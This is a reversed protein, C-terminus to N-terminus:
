TPATSSTRRVLKRIADVGDAVGRTGRDEVYPSFGTLDGHGGTSSM